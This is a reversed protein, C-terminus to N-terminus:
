ILNNPFCENCVAKNCVTEVQIMLYATLNKIFMKRPQYSNLLDNFCNKNWLNPLCFLVDLVSGRKLFLLIAYHTTLNKLLSAKRYNPDTRGDTRRYRIAKKTLKPM